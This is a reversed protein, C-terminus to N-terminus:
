LSLNEGGLEPSFDILEHLIVHLQDNEIASVTNMFSIIKNRTLWQICICTCQIYVRAGNPNMLHMTDLAGWDAIKNIWSGREDNALQGTIIHGYGEPLRWNEQSFKPQWVIALWHTRIYTHVYTYIHIHMIIHKNDGLLWSCIIPQPILTPTGLSSHPDHVFVDTIVNVPACGVMCKM